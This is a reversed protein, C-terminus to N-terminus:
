TLKLYRQYEFLFTLDSKRITKIKTKSKQSAGKKERKILCTETKENFREILGVEICSRADSTLTIKKNRGSEDESNDITTKTIKRSEQEAFESSTYLM